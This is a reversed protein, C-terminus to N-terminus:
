PPRSTDSNAHKLETEYIWQDLGPRPDPPLDTSSALHRIKPTTRFRPQPIVDLSPEGEKLSLQWGRPIYAGGPDPTRFLVIVQKEAERRDKWYRTRKLETDGSLLDARHASNKMKPFRAASVRFPVM